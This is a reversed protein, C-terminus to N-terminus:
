QELKELEDLVAAIGAREDATAAKFVDAAAKFGRRYIGAATSVPIMYGAALVAVGERIRRLGDSESSM